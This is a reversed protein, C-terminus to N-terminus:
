GAALLGLLCMVLLQFFPKQPRSKEGQGDKNQTHKEHICGSGIVPHQQAAGRNHKIVAAAEKYICPLLGTVSAGIHIGQHRQACGNGPNETQEVGKIGFIPVAPTQVWM